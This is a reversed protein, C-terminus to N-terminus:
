NINENKTRRESFFNYLAFIVIIQYIPITVLTISFIQVGVFMLYILHHWFNYKEEIYQEYKKAILIFIISILLKLLIGLVGFDAYAAGIVGFSPAGTKALTASILRPVKLGLALSGFLEPKEKWIFRPIYSYFEDQIFIKGYSFEKLNEELDNFNRIYDSYAAIGSLINKSNINQQKSYMSFVLLGSVLFVFGLKIILKNNCKKEKFMITSLLLYGVILLLSKQGFFYVVFCIIITSISYAIIQKRKNSKNLQAIYYFYLFISLPLFVYYIIGGGLRTNAYFLRPNSFINILKNFNLILISIILFIMIYIGQKNITKNELKPTKLNVDFKGLEIFATIIFLSLFYFIQYFDGIKFDIYLKNQYLYIINPLIVLLGTGVFQFFLLNIIKGKKYSVYAYVLSMTAFLLLYELM